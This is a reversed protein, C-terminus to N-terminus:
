EVPKLYYILDAVPIEDRPTGRLDVLRIKREIGLVAGGSVGALGTLRAGPEVAAEGTGERISVNRLKGGQLPILARGRAIVPTVFPMYALDDTPPLTRQLDTGSLSWRFSGDRADWGQVRTGDGFTMLLVDGSAALVCPQGATQRKWLPRGTAVELCCVERGWWDWMFVRDGAPTLYLCQGGDPLYTWLERGTAADLCVVSRYTPVVLRDGRRYLDRGESDLERTWVRAAPAGDPVRYCTVRTNRGCVVFTQADLARMCRFPEVAKKWRERGSGLDVGALHGTKGHPVVLLRGLRHARVEFTDPTDAHWRIRRARSDLCYFRTAVRGGQDIHAMLIAPEDRGPSVDALAPAAAAL